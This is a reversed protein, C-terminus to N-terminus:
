VSSSGTYGYYGTASAVVLTRPGRDSQALQALTQSLGRTSDIRSDRIRRKKEDTWRGMVNEGALHVVADCRSLAQADFRNSSTDWAVWDGSAERNRVVPIAERGQSRLSACLAAGVLGNSGSVAIRAPHDDPTVDMLIM